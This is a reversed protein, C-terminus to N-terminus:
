PIAEQIPCSIISPIAMAETAAVADQQDLIARHEEQQITESSESYRPQIPRPKANVLGDFLEIIYDDWPLMWGAAGFEPPWIIDIMYVDIMPDHRQFFDPYISYRERTSEPLDFLQLHIDPHQTEFETVQAKLIDDENGAAGVIMTVTVPEPMQTGCGTLGIFLILGLLFTTKAEFSKRSIQRSM